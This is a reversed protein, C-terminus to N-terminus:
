LRGCFLRTEYDLRIRGNVQYRGFLSRVGELLRGARAEGRQPMFSKSFIRREFGDLDLMQHNPFTFTQYVAPAFFASIKAENAHHDIEDYENAWGKLFEEYEGQFQTSGSRENWALGVWGFSKLIRAFERRAAMADFWHFAQGCVAGHVSQAPLSTDEATGKISHFNHHGGLLREAAARMGDNPEVAFVENGNELFLKTLIGSGSGIDALADSPNLGYNAQLTELLERPYGPRAAVYDEVRSSFRETVRM